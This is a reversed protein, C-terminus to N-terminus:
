RRPGDDGTQSIKDRLDSVVMEAEERRYLGQSHPDARGTAESFCHKEMRKSNRVIVSNAADVITRGLPLESWSSSWPTPFDKQFSLVNEIKAGFLLDVARGDGVVCVKSHLQSLRRIIVYQAYNTDSVRGGSYIQVAGSLAGARRSRRAAPHQDAAPDDFDMANGSQLAPLLHQLHQRIRIQAQRDEAAYVSNALCAGPAQSLKQCLIHAFGLPQATNRGFRNLERVITKLLNKCDSPEYITFSDPFM